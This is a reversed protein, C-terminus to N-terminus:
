IEKQREGARQHQRLHMVALWLSGLQLLACFYFPAGIRWDGQPLHSVMALLPAAVMPAFVATLSTLSNVAGLTQGQSRSDAASSILSNVSAAVTGGLLNVGIIAFMMWGQTAAGWMAYAASSSMLGLIALKQPSFWTLLRGMLFGQVVVSVVGVAALSWGNELPGWGFKFTTYLVWSTYLVFQALGSFAVVGVLAGVGKLQGLARLATVPHASRWVFHKRQSVPLSEPLVFYGYMLNAMALVGAAFFPLRLSVAGLLGGMVPGIIFGVGMMAGLLGFRKARLEPVTIDAVYANAIAANAQMAGGLTRVLVLGWLTPTLATGFFSLGLGFFGLLLVPRRGFRDSLAGLVPSALFNALGFSFAVLGYWYAQDTPNDSFQGVLAPMVPIILGIALMDILVTMMIFPMAADRARLHLPM